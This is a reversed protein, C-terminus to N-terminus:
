LVHAYKFERHESSTERFKWWYLFPILLLFSGTSLPLNFGSITGSSIELYLIESDGTSTDSCAIYVKGSADGTIAPARSDGPTDTLIDIGTWAGALCTRHLIESTIGDGCCQDEWVVHITEDLAWVDSKGSLEYWAGGTGDSIVSANTWGTGARYQAYMIEPDTGWSGDTGDTWVAHM